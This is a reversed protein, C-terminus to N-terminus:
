YGGYRYSNERWQMYENNRKVNRVLCTQQSHIDEAETQGLFDKNKRWKHLNM